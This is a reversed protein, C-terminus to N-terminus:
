PMVMGGNVDITAGTVFRGGAGTLWLVCAAVDDPTGFFGVPIRSLIEQQVEPPNMDMMPTRIYGPAITNATVGRGAFELAVAKMLGTLGAKSAAYPGMGAAGTTGLISGIAVIRGWGRRAMAPVVARVLGFVSSLNVEIVAEWEATTTAELSTRRSIGANAILIDVGGLMEDISAVLSAVGKEGALDAAVALTSGGIARAVEDLAVQRTGTVVIQAGREHLRRAIVQGIGGTAGTVLARRGSLDFM